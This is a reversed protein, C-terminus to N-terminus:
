RTSEDMERVVREASELAGEMWGPWTSAHEGAFHIRGEPRAIHPMLAMMQGPEFWAYAGRAWEDEDWCKSAGGEYQDVIRPYVKAMGALVMTLRDAERMTTARRANAGAMYSELIGRTGPQNLTREYVGMVPLDTSASGSLGDAAWFRTRTQVFVRAVSTYRLQEVATRKERGFPPSVELRRLVTFPIACVIRDATFSRQTGGQVAVVRVGNAQQELRVVPTGDHIRDALRSALAKPLRDTGGRITFSQKAASRHAAERLLDLASVHDPGDGLGSPLGIALIAMAAPSAGQARLFDSFTIRDYKELSRLLPDRLEAQVVEQVTPVVYKQWLMRGDIEREAATLEFPWEIREGPSSEIRKGMVHRVAIGPAPRIPDIEHGFQQIYRQVRAHSDFVQMAGGEAYLGDAFPERITFVRGGPRTRAELVTVDHGKALLDLAASLGAMGAGIVVIKQPTPAGRARLTASTLHRIPAASIAAAGALAQRLFRRRDLTDSM